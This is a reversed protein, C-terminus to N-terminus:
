CDKDSEKHKHWNGEFCHRVEHLLCQPYQKLRIVCTSGKIVAEGLIEGERSSQSTIFQDTEIITLTSSNRILVPKTSSCGVVTSMVVFFVYLYKKM